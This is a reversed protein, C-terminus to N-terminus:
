SERSDEGGATIDLGTYATNIEVGTYATNIDLGANIHLILKLGQM